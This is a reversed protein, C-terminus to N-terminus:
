WYCLFDEKDTSCRPSSFCFIYGQTCTSVCVCVCVCECVCVCVCVCLVCM